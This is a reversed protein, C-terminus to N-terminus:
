SLVGEIKDIFKIDKPVPTVIEGNPLEVIAVTYNGVSDEFEECDCGWQHFYGIKFVHFSGDKFYQGNCRRLGNCKPDEVEPMPIDCSTKPLQTKQAYEFARLEDKGLWKVFAGCDNCYLGTNNGKVETHLAISGCKKCCNQYM